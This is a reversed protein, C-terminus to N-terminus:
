DMNQYIMKLKSELKILVQKNHEIKQEVEEKLANAGKSNKFFGLNNEYQLINTKTTRIKERVHHAEKELAKEPNQAGALENIKVKFM